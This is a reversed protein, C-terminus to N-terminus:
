PLKDWVAQLEEQWNQTNLDGVHKYRIVGNSDVFYTEPAGFVGLDIGLKGDADVIVERYPNGKENLWVKAAANSDKYNIGYIAINDKALKMLFPHEVRCTVCWTAWVNVLSKQGHLNKETLSTATNLSPLTFTPFPKNILASPMETPDLTLGRMLFIGLVIFGLLPIFLALRKNM